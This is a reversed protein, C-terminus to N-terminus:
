DDYIVKITLEKGDVGTVEQREIYGRDKAQTKLYFIIATMNGASIQEYLKSEAFDKVAEKENKLADRATPYKDLLRYVHLRSCGLRDAVKSVFGRSGEIAKIVQDAKYGNGNSGM